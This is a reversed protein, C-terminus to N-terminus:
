RVTSPHLFDYSRTLVNNMNLITKLNCVTFMQLDAIVVLDENLETSRCHLTCGEQSLSMQKCASRTWYSAQM